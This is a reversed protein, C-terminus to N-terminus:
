LRDRSNIVVERKATANLMKAYHRSLMAEGGDSSADQKAASSTAVSGASSAGNQAMDHSAEVGNSKVPVNVYRVVEKVVVSPRAASSPLTNAPTPQAFPAGRLESSNSAMSPATMSPQETGPSTTGSAPSHQPSTSSQAISGNSSTRSAAQEFTTSRTVYYTTSVACLLLLFALSPRLAWRRLSRTAPNSAVLPADTVMPRQALVGVPEEFAVTELMQEIRMRTRADLDSSLQFMEEDMSSRIAGRILLHERLLSRADTSKALREFLVAELEKRVLEGDLYQVILEETTSLHPLESQQERNNM